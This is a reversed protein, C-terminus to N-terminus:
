GYQGLARLRRRLLREEGANSTLEIAVGYAAAAEPYHGLRRLLDARTAHWPQYTALDLGEVIALAVAPGDVEAIAVARNLEVIPSPALALLQDHLALIQIWDTSEASPADAHVANIAAQLQHPGPRGIRLCERVLALGETILEVDWRGRDQEGIPVLAGSADVRAPRRAAILLMLAVAGRVEPEEPVLDLLLRGLRIAEDCLDPRDLEDSETAVYGENFVLMVVSMVAGLRDPLEHEDPTRLPIGAARIKRKTRLIRQSMTSEPVLFARAIARTEIGAVLRLTLAVQAARDLAPHCCAFVLRLVDDDVPEDCLDPEAADSVASSALRQKADRRADRRVRDVARRRAVTTIWGGPNDPLGRSWSRAADSFAEQAADEALDPDGFARALVAVVEAWEDRFVERLAAEVEAAAPDSM